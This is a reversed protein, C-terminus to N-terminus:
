IKNIQLYHNFLCHFTSRNIKCNEVEMLCPSFFSRIDGDTSDIACITEQEYPCVVNPCEANAVIMFAM